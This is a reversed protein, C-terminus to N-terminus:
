FIRGESERRKKKEVFWIKSLSKRMIRDLAHGMLDIRYFLLFHWRNTKWTISGIRRGTWFRTSRSRTWSRGGSIIPLVQQIKKKKRWREIKLATGISRNREGNRTLWAGTIGLLLALREGSEGDVPAEGDNKLPGDDGVFFDNFSKRLSGNGVSWRRGGRLVYSNTM